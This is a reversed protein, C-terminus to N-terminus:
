GAARTRQLWSATSVRWRKCWRRRRPARSPATAATPPMLHRPDTSGAGGNGAVGAAGVVAAPRPPPVAPAQWQHCQHGGRRGGRAAWPQLRSGALPFLELNSGRARTHCALPTHTPGSVSVPHYHHCALPSDCHRPVTARHRLELAVSAAQPVSPQDLVAACQPVPLTARALTPTEESNAEGHHFGTRRAAAPPHLKHHYPAQNIPM